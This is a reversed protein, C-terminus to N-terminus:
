AYHQPRYYLARRQDDYIAYHVPIEWRLNHYLTPLQRIPGGSQRIISVSNFGMANVQKAVNDMHQKREDEDASAPEIEVSPEPQEEDQQKADITPSKIELAEEPDDCFAEPSASFDFANFGLHM